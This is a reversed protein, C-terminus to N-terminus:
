NFYPFSPLSVNISNYKNVPNLIEEVMTVYGHDDLRVINFYDNRYGGGYENGLWHCMGYASRESICVRPDELVHVVGNNSDSVFESASLIGWAVCRPIEEAPHRVKMEYPMFWGIKEYGEAHEGMFRTEGTSEDYWSSELSELRRQRCAEPSLDPEPRTVPPDSEHEKLFQEIRPHHLDMRFPPYTRGAADLWRLPDSILTIQTVKSRDLEFRCIFKTKLRGDGGGWFVQGDMWGIAWFERVSGMASYLEELDVDWSKVTRRMWLFFERAHYPDMNQPMGPPAYPFRLTLQDSFREAYKEEWFPATILERVMARNKERNSM